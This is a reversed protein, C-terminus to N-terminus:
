LLFSTASAVHFERDNRPKLPTAHGQRLQSMSQGLGRALRLKSLTM